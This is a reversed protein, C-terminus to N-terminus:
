SQTMQLVKSSELLNKERKEKVFLNKFCQCQLWSIINIQNLPCASINWVPTGAQLYQRTQLVDITQLILTIIRLVVWTSEQCYHRCCKNEIYNLKKFKQTSFHFGYVLAVHILIFINEQYSNSYVLMRKFSIEFM